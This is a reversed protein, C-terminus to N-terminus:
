TARNLGLHSASATWGHTRVAHEHDAPPRRARARELADSGSREARGQRATDRGRCLVPRCRIERMEPGDAGMHGAAGGHGSASPRGEGSVCSSGLGRYAVGEPRAATGITGLECAGRRGGRTASVPRTRGLGSCLETSRPRRAADRGGVARQVFQEGSEGDDVAESSLAEIRGPGAGQAACPTWEPDQLTSFTVTVIQHCRATM